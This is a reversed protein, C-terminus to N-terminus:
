MQWNFHNTGLLFVAFYNARLSLFQIKTPPFGIILKEDSHITEECGKSGRCYGYASKGYVDRALL